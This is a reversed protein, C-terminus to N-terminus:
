RAYIQIYFSSSMLCSSSLSVDCSVILEEWFELDKEFTADEDEYDDDDSDDNRPFYKVVVKQLANSPQHQDKPVWFLHLCPRFVRWAFDDSSLRDAFGRYKLSFPRDLLTKEVDLSFGM